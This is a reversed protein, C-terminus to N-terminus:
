LGDKRTHCGHARDSLTRASAGRMGAMEELTAQRNQWPTLTMLERLAEMGKAELDHILHFRVVQERDILFTNCKAPTPPRAIGYCRHLRGLPDIILSATRIGVGGGCVPQHLSFHKPAVALFVAELRALMRGQGDLLAAEGPGLWPVFCLVQWRGALHASDLCRLEGEVLAPLQFRPARRGVRIM